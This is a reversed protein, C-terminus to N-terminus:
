KKKYANLNLANSFEDCLTSLAIRSDWFNCKFHVSDLKAPLSHVVPLCKSYINNLSLNNGNMDKITKNISFRILYVNIEYLAQNLIEESEKNIGKKYLNSCINDLTFLFNMADEPSSYSSLKEYLSNLECRMYMSQMEDKGVIYEVIEAIQTLYPYFFKSLKSPFYRNTLFQTYGENIGYGIPNESYNAFGVCFKDDKGITSSAHFLEHFIYEKPNGEHLFIANDLSSYYARIGDSRLYDELKFNYVKLNNFNNVMFALDDENFNKRITDIFHLIQDSHKFKSIEAYNFVEINKNVEDSLSIIYGDRPSFDKRIRYNTKISNIKSYLLVGSSVAGTFITFLHALDYFLNSFSSVDAIGIRDKKNM